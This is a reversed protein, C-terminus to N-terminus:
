LFNGHDRTGVEKKSHLLTPITKWHSKMTNFSVNRLGGLIQFLSATNTMMTGDTWFTKTVVVKQAPPSEEANSTGQLVHVAAYITWTQSRLYSEKQYRLWPFVFRRIWGQEVTSEKGVAAHM